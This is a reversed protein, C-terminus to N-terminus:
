ESDSINNRNYHRRGIEVIKQYYKLAANKAKIKINGQGEEFSKNISVNFLKKRVRCNQSTNTCRVRFKNLNGQNERKPSTGNSNNISSYSNFRGDLIPKKILGLRSKHEMVYDSITNKIKPALKRQQKKMEQYAKQKVQEALKSFHCPRVREQKKTIVYGRKEVENKVLQDCIAKLAFDSCNGHTILKM